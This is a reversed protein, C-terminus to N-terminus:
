KRKILKLKFLELINAELIQWSGGGVVVVVCVCSQLICNLKCIFILDRM